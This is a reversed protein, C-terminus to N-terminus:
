GRTNSSRGRPPSVLRESRSDEFDAGDEPELEFEEEIYIMADKWGERYREAEQKMISRWEEEPDEDRQKLLAIRADTKGTYVHSPQIQWEGTKKDKKQLVFLTKELDLVVDGRAM